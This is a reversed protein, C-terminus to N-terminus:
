VPPAFETRPNACLRRPGRTSKESGSVRMDELSKPQRDDHEKTYTQVRRYLDGLPWGSYRIEDQEEKEATRRGSLLMHSDETADLFVEALAADAAVAGPRILWYGPIPLRVEARLIALGTSEDLGVEFM